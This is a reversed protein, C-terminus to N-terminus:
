PYMGEKPRDLPEDGIYKPKIFKVRSYPNMVYKWTNRLPLSWGLDECSGWPCEEPFPNNRFYETKGYIYSGSIYSYRMADESDDDYPMPTRIGGYKPNDWSVWDRSREGWINEIANMQVDWDDGKEEKYKLQGEYWGPMLACYDHVIVMNDYQAKEVMLNKKKTIWGGKKINNQEYFLDVNNGEISIHPIEPTAEEDFPVHIIDPRNHLSLSHRGESVFPGGAIIIEYNPINQKRISDCMMRIRERWTFDRPSDSYTTIGFTFNMM